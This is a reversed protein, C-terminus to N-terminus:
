PAKRYLVRFRRVPPEEHDLFDEFQVETLPAETLVTLEARTLPWPLSGPPDTEERGRCILLLIGGPSLLKPLTELARGRSGDQLAQLTYCEYVFDFADMFEKPPDLLDAVKYTVASGIFRDRCWDVATRSIDFATVKCGWDALEEADDGLGCGVVLTRLEVPPHMHETLWDILLPNPALNAWPVSAFDGAARKYLADFWGTDDHRAVFEAALERARARAEERNSAHDIPEAM